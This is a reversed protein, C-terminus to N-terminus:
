IISLTAAGTVDDVGDQDLDTPSSEYHYAAIYNPHFLLRDAATNYGDSIFSKINEKPYGYKKTLVNYLGSCNNWYRYNNAYLHNGGSIIVAHRHPM